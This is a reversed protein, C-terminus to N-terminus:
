ELFLFSRKSSRSHNYLSKGIIINSISKAIVEEHLKVLTEKHENIWEIFTNTSAELDKLKEPNELVSALKSTLPSYVEKIKEKNSFIKETLIQKLNSAVILGEVDSESLTNGFQNYIVTQHAVHSFITSFASQIKNPAYFPSKVLNRIERKIKFRQESSLSSLVLILSKLYTKKCVNLFSTKLTLDIQESQFVAMKLMKIQLHYVAHLINRFEDIEREKTCIVCGLDTEKPSGHIWEFSTKKHFLHGCPLTESNAIYPECDKKKGLLQNLSTMLTTQINKEHPDVAKSGILPTTVFSIIVLAFITAQVIRM